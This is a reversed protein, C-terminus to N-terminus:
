YWLRAETSQNLARAMYLAAYIKFDVVGGEYERRQCWDRVEAIPVHHVRIDETHDGGGATMRTLGTAYFFTIMEDTLGASSPGDSLRTWNKAEYGTEEKLERKAASVLPEEEQYPIDGALGAPLEFVKKGIPPRYQEVLVVQRDDTVALICVVGSAKRRTAYEWKGRRMMHLHKGELLMETEDDPKPTM